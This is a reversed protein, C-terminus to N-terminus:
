LEVTLAWLIQPSHRIGIKSILPPEMWGPGTERLTLIMPVLGSIVRIVRLLGRLQRNQFPLRSKLSRQSQSRRAVLFNDLSHHISALHGGLGICNEEAITFYTKNPQFIFCTTNAKIGPVSGQPCAGGNVFTFFNLAFFILLLFMKSFVILFNIWKRSQSFAIIKLPSSLLWSPQICFARKSRM